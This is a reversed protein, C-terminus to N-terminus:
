TVVCTCTNCLCPQRSCPQQGSPRLTTPATDPLVSCTVCLYAERRVHVLSHILLHSKISVAGFNLLRAVNSCIHLSGANFHGTCLERDGLLRKGGERGGKRGRKRGREGEQKNEYYLDHLRWQGVESWKGRLSM